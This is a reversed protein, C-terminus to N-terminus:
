SKIKSTYRKVMASLTLKSRLEKNFWILIIPNSAGIFSPITFHVAYSPMCLQFGSIAKDYLEGTLLLSFILVTSLLTTFNMVWISRCGKLQSLKMNIFKRRSHPFKSLNDHNVRRRKRIVKYLVAISALSVVAAIFGHVFFPVCIYLSVPNIVLIEVQTANSSLSMVSISSAFCLFIKLNELNNLFHYLLALIQFGCVIFLWLLLIRKNIHQFPWQIKILRTLALLAVTSSSMTITLRSLITTVLYLTTSDRLLAVPSGGKFHEYAMLVPRILNTTFDLGALMIYLLGSIILSKKYYHHAIFPNFVCSVVFFIILATGYVYDMAKYDINSGTIGATHNVITELVAM